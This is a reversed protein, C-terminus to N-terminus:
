EFLDSNRDTGFIAEIFAILLWVAVASLALFGFILGLVIFLLEM